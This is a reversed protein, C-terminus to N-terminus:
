QRHQGNLSTVHGLIDRHVEEIPKQGDVDVLKGRERYYDILPATYKLFVDIRHPVVESKDDDRQYLEGGDRECGPPNKVQDPTLTYVQGCQRCIFRHSLRDILAQRDVKLYIASEIQRGLEALMSDLAQAQALTRPFGDLLFGRAADPQQLRQRIIDIMVPDPVLEGRDMYSRVKEGLSTGAQRQARLIDGTAIVPIGFEQTLFSSQTGKGAGPAGFLILNL